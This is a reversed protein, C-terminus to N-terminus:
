VTATAAQSCRGCLILMASESAWGSVRGVLPAERETLHDMCLGMGCVGCTAVAEVTEGERADM